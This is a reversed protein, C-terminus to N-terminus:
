INSIIFDINKILIKREHINEINKLRKIMEIPNQQKSFDDFKINLKEFFDLIKDIKKQFNYNINKRQTFICKDLENLAMLNEEKLINKFKKLYKTIKLKRFLIKNSSYNNRKVSINKKINTKIKNKNLFRDQINGNDNDNNNNYSDKNDNNDNNNFNNKNNKYNIDSNNNKNENKTNNNNNNNERYSIEILDTENLKNNDNKNDKNDKNNRNNEKINIQTSDKKSSKNQNIYGISLSLNQINENANYIENDYKYNYNDNDSYTDYDNINNKGKKDTSNINLLNFDEKKKIFNDRNQKTQIENNYNKGKILKSQKEYSYKNYFNDKYINKDNDKEIENEKDSINL